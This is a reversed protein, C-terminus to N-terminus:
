AAEKKKAWPLQHVMQMDQTSEIYYKLSSLDTHGSYMRTGELDYNLLEYIKTVFAKRFSHNNVKGKIGLRRCATAIMGSAQQRTIPKGTRYRGFSSLFLPTKPTVKIGKSKFFDKLKQVEDIYIDPIPLDRNQSGKLAKVHLVEREEVDGFTLKLAESIRTGFLAHTLILVKNKIKLDNAFLNIEEETALRCGIM